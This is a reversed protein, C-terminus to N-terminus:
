ATGTEGTAPLLDAVSCAADLAERTITRRNKIEEIHPKSNACDNDDNTPSVAGGVCCPAVKCRTGYPPRAGEAAGNSRFAAGKFIAIRYIDGALRKVDQCACRVPLGQWARYPQYRGVYHRNYVALRVRTSCSPNSGVHARNHAPHEESQAIAVLYEGTPSSFRRISKPFPCILSTHLEKPVKMM